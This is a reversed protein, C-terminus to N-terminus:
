NEAVKSTSGDLALSRPTVKADEFEEITSTALEELALLIQVTFNIPLDIPIAVM